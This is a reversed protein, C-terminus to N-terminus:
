LFEIKTSTRCFAAWELPEATGHRCVFFKMVFIGFPLYGFVCSCWNLRIFVIISSLRCLITEAKSSRKHNNKNNSLAYCENNQEVFDLRQSNSGFRSRKSDDTLWCHIEKRESNNTLVFSHLCSNVHALEFALKSSQNFHNQIWKCNFHFYFYFIFPYVNSMWLIIYNYTSHSISCCFFYFFQFVCNLWQM